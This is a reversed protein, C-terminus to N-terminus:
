VEGREIHELIRFDLSKMFGWKVLVKCLRSKLLPYVMRELLMLKRYDSSFVDDNQKMFNLREMNKIYENSSSGSLGDTQYLTIVEDVKRYSVEYKFLALMFFQWDSTIRDNVNYLGVKVFVERKILTSPHPLSKHWTQSKELITPFCTRTTTKKHKLLLDGYILDEQYVSLKSLSHKNLFFDGSNLFILYDGKANNIGKNMAEYIGGDPESIWYALQSKYEEILNASGDTSGGDIVVYEFAVNEQAVVSKM